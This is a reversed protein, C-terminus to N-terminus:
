LAPIETDLKTTEGSILNFLSVEKKDDVVRTVLLTNHDIIEYDQIGSFVTKVNKGDYDSSLLDIQDKNNLRKDNNTDDKVVTFLHKAIKFQRNYAGIDVTDNLLTYDLILAHKDLLTRKDSASTFM